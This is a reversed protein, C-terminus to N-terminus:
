IIAIVWWIVDCWFFNYNEHENSLNTYFKFEELVYLPGFTVSKICINEWIFFKTLYIRYKEWMKKCANEDTEHIFNYTYFHWTQDMMSILTRGHYLLFASETTCNRAWSKHFGWELVFLDWQTAHKGVLLQRSRSGPTVGHWIYDTIIENRSLMKCTSRKFFSSHWSFPDYSKQRWVLFPKPPVQVALVRETHCRYIAITPTKSLSSKQEAPLGKNRIVVFIIQKKRSTARTNHLM